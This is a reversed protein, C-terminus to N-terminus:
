AFQLTIVHISKSKYLVWSITSLLPFAASYPSLYQHTILGLHGAARAM